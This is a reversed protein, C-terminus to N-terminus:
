SVDPEEAIVEPLWVGRREARWRDFVLYGGIALFTLGTAIAGVALTWRRLARPLPADPAPDSLRADAAYSGLLQLPLSLVFLGLLTAGVRTARDVGPLAGRLSGTRAVRDMATTADDPAGQDAPTM